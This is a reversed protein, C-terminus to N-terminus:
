NYHSPNFDTDEQTYEDQRSILNLTTSYQPVLSTSELRNEIVGRVAEQVLATQHERLAMKCDMVAVKKIHDFLPEDICAMRACAAVARIARPTKSAERGTKVGLKRLAVRIGREDNKAWVCHTALEAIMLGYNIWFATVKDERGEYFVCTGVHAGFKNATSNKYELRDLSSTSSQCLAILIEAIIPLKDRDRNSAKKVARRTLEDIVDKWKKALSSPICELLDRLKDSVLVFNRLEQTHLELTVTSEGSERPITLEWCVPTEDFFSLQWSSIMQLQVDSLSSEYRRAVRVNNKLVKNLDDGALTNQNGVISVIEEAQKGAESISESIDSASSANIADVGTKHGARSTEVRRQTLQVRFIAMLEIDSHPYEQTANWLKFEDWLLNQVKLEDLDCTLALKERIRDHAKRDNPLYWYVHNPGIEQPDGTYNFTLWKKKCQDENFDTSLKSFEVWHSLLSPHVAHFFMGIDLWQDYSGNALRMKVDPKVRSWARLAEDIREKTDPDDPPLCEVTSPFGCASSRSTKKRGRKVHDGSCTSELEQLKELPAIEIVDPLEFWSQRRPRLESHDGKRTMTGFIKCIRPADHVKNDVEVDTSLANKADDYPAINLYQKENEKISEGNELAKLVKLAKESSKMKTKLEEGDPSYREIMAYVCNEILDPYDANKFDVRWLLGAGNGSMGLIPMPWGSAVMDDRIKEAMAIAANCQIDSSNIGKPRIPDVDVFFWRRDIIDEEQICEGQYKQRIVGDPRLDVEFPLGTKNSKPRTKKGPEFSNLSCYFAGPLYKKDFKEIADIASGVSTFHGAFGGPHGPVSVIRIEFVPNGQQFVNLFERPDSSRRM